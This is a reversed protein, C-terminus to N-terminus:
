SISKTLLTGAEQFEMQIHSYRKMLELNLKRGVYNNLISQVIFKKSKIIRMSTNIDM